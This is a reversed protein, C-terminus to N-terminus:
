LGRIIKNARVWICDSDHHIHRITSQMSNRANPNKLIIAENDVYEDWSREAWSQDCYKCINREGSYDDVRNPSEAAIERILSIAEITVVMPNITIETVKAM